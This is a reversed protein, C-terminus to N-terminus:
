RRRSKIGLKTEVRLVREGLEKVGTETAYPAVDLQRRITEELEAKSVMIGNMRAVDDRVNTFGSDMDGRISAFGAKVTETLHAIDAQIARAYHDFSLPKKKPKAM